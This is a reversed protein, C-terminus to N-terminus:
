WRLDGVQEADGVARHAFLEGSGAVLEPPDEIGAVGM